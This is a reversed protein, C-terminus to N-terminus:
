EDIGGNTLTIGTCFAIQTDSPSVNAAPLTIEVHSVGTQHLAKDIGSRAVITGIKRCSAIYADLAESAADMVTEADPGPLFYLTASISYEVSEAAQVTVSDTLPRVDEDNLAATVAAILDSDPTGQPNEDTAEAIISVLVEGPEPSTASADKVGDVSLAHYIYANTPGATSIAELSLPIRLRYEEDTENTKRACDFSAGIQDLNAGTAYALMNQEGADQTEARLNMERYALVEIIKYAPDSESIELTPMREAIDALMEAVITEFDKQEIFVPAALLSLDIASRTSM